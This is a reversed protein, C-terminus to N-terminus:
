GRDLRAYYLTNKYECIEGAFSGTSDNELMQIIAFFFEYFSPFNKVMELLMLAYDLCIFEREIEELLTESQSSDCWASIRKEFPNFRADGHMRLKRKLISEADMMILRAEESYVKSKYSCSIRGEEDSDDTIFIRGFETEIIKFENLPLRKQQNGLIEIEGPSRFEGRGLIDAQGLSDIKMIARLLLIKDFEQSLFFLQIDYIGFIYINKRSFVQKETLNPMLIGDSRFEIPTTCGKLSKAKQQFFMETFQKRISEDINERISDNWTYSISYTGDANCILSKEGSRMKVPTMEDAVYGMKKAYDFIKPHMNVKTSPAMIGCVIAGPFYKWNSDYLRIFGLSGEASFYINKTLGADFLAKAEEPTVVVPNIVPRKEELALTVIQEAESGMRDTRICAKVTLNLIRDEPTKM